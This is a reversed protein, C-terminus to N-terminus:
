GRLMESIQQSVIRRKWRDIDNAIRQKHELFRVGSYHPLLSDLFKIRDEMYLIMSGQGGCIQEELSIQNFARISPNM